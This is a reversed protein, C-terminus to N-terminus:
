AINCREDFWAQIKANNARIKEAIDANRLAQKASWMSFQDSIDEESLIVDKKIVMNNVIQLKSLIDDDEEDNEVISVKGNDLIKARADLVSEGFDILKRENFIRFVYCHSYINKSVECTDDVIQKLLDIDFITSSLLNPQFYKRKIFINNNNLEFEFINVPWQYMGRESENKWGCNCAIITRKKWMNLVQDNCHAIYRSCNLCPAKGSYVFSVNVKLKTCLYDLMQETHTIYGFSISGRVNGLMEYLQYLVNAINDCNCKQISNQCWELKNLLDKRGNENLAGCYMQCTSQQIHLQSLTPVNRLYESLASLFKSIVKQIKKLCDDTRGQANKDFFKYIEDSDIIHKVKKLNIERINNTQENGCNAFCAYYLKFMMRELFICERNEHTNDLYTSLDSINESIEHSMYLLDFLRIINKMRVNQASTSQNDLKLWRRARAAFADHVVGSCLIYPKDHIAIAFLNYDKYASDRVAVLEEKSLKCVANYQNIYENNCCSCECTFLMCVIRFLKVYSIILMINEWCVRRIKM